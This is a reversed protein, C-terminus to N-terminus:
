KEFIWKVVKIPWLITVGIMYIPIMGEDVEGKRKAEEYIPQKYKNWNYISIYIGIVFYVCTIILSTEM